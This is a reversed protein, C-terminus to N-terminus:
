EWYCCEFMWAIDKNVTKDGFLYFAGEVSKDWWGKNSGGNQFMYKLDETLPYVGYTADICNVYKIMCDTYDEGKDPNRLPGNDTLDKMSVYQAKDNLVVYVIPGSASDKHYYGDSGLVANFSGTVDVFKQTKGSIGSLTFASPPTKASYNNYSVVGGAAGLREIVFIGESVGTVSFIQYVDSSLQDDYVNIEVQNSSGYAPHEHIYSTMGATTLKANKDTLSIRYKGSRTPKFVVYNNGSANMEVYIGGTYVNQIIYEGGYVSTTDSINAKPAAIVKTSTQSSTLSAASHDFGYNMNNPFKVEVTYNGANLSTSAKGNSGVLVTTVPKGGSLFSVATDKIPNGNYDVVEVTYTKKTVTPNTSAKEKKMTITVSTSNGFAKSTTEYGNCSATATYDDSVLTFSVKGNSGTTAYSDGVTVLAGSIAKGSEDKVTVSYDKKQGVTNGANNNPKNDNGTSESSETDETSGEGAVIAASLKFEGAPYENQENPLTGVSIQVVDGANVEISVTKNGNADETGETSMARMAYTNLNYLNFDYQIGETVSLLTVTLTGTETATYTYYVGQDNGAEVKADFEGLELVIPNGQTGQPFVLEVNFTKEEKASNGIAFDAPTYTDPTMLPVSVVGNEAKYEKDGYLVYANEDAITLVMGNVKYMQYYVVGEAPVKAEFTTGAMVFPNEKSGDGEPTFVEEGVETGAQTGGQTGGQTSGGAPKNGGFAIILAIILIVVAAAGAGIGIQVKKDLGKFKEVIEKCKEIINEM